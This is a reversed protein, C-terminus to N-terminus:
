GAPRRGVQRSALYQHILSKLLEITDVSGPYKRLVEAAAWVFADSHSDKEVIVNRMETVVQQPPAPTDVTVVVPAGGPPSPVRPAEAAPPPARHASRTMIARWALRGAQAAGWVALTGTGGAGAAGLLLPWLSPLSLHAGPASAEGPSSAETASTPPRDPLPPLSLPLHDLLQETRQRSLDLAQRLLTVDIPRPGGESASRVGRLAERLEDLLSALETARQRELATQSTTLDILRRVDAAIEAPLVGITASRSQDAPPPINGPPAPAPAPPPDPPPPPAPAPPLPLRALEALLWEKGMYGQVRGTSTWCTPLIAIRKAQAERPYDAVDRTEIHYTARIRALFAPDTQLDRALTRCPPCTGSHWIELVPKEAAQITTASLCLGLLAGLLGATSTGADPMDAGEDPAARRKAPRKHSKKRPPPAEDLSEASRAIGALDRPEIGDAGGWRVVRVM